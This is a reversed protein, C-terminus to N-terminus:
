QQNTGKHCAEGAGKATALAILLRANKLEYILLNGMREIRRKKRPMGMGIMM